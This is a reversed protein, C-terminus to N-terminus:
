LRIELSAHETMAKVILRRVFYACFFFALYHTFYCGWGVLACILGFIVIAAGFGKIM